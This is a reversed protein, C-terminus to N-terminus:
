GKELPRGVVFGRGHRMEEIWAEIKEFRSESRQDGTNIREMLATIKVDQVAIASIATEMKDVALKLEKIEAAQQLGVLEFKTAAKALQASIWWVAGVISGIIGAVGVWAEPTM